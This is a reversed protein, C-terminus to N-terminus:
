IENDFVLLAVPYSAWTTAIPSLLVFFLDM